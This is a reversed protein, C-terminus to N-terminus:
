FCSKWLRGSRDHQGTVDPNNGALSAQRCRRLTTTDLLSLLSWCHRAPMTEGCSRDIEGGALQRPMEEAPVRVVEPMNENALQWCGTAESTRCDAWSTPFRAPIRCRRRPPRAHQHCERVRFQHLLGSRQVGPSSVCALGFVRYRAYDSFSASGAVVDDLRRRFCIWVALLEQCVHCAYM